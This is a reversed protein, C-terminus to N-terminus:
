MKEAGGQSSKSQTMLSSVGKILLSIPGGSRQKMERRQDRYEAREDRYAAKQDRHEARLERKEQRYERKLQRQEYRHERKEARRCGRQSMAHGALRNEFSSRQNVSISQEPLLHTQPMAQQSRAREYPTSNISHNNSKEDVFEYAPPPGLTDINDNDQIIRGQQIKLPTTNVARRKCCM